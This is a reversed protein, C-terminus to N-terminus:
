IGEHFDFLCYIILRGLSWFYWGSGRDVVMETTRKLGLIVAASIHTTEFLTPPIFIFPRQQNATPLTNPFLHRNQRDNALAQNRSNLPPSFVSKVVESTCSTGKYQELQWFRLGLTCYARDIQMLLYERAWINEENSSILDLLNSIITKFQLVEEQTPMKEFWIQM